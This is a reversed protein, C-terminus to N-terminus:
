SFPLPPARVHHAAKVIRSYNNQFLGQVKVSIPKVVPSRAVAITDSDTDSNGSHASAVAPFELTTSTYGDDLTVKTVSREAGVLVVVLSAILLRILM